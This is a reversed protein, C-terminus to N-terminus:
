VTYEKAGIAEMFRRIEDAHRGRIIIHHNGIGHQLLYPKLNVNLTIQTRCFHDSYHTEVAQAETVFYRDLKEGGWKM